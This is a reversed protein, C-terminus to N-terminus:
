ENGELASLLRDAEELSIKKQELMRLIMLREDESVPPRPPAPPAPPSPWEFGWTQRRSRRDTAAQARGESRRRHAELKRELKEQARRMKEQARASEREGTNIAQNVIRETEEPSFGARNLRDSLREMQENIRRTMDAMQQQIQEEVQRAVQQGFDKPLGGVDGAVPGSESWGPREVFLYIAGGSRLTMPTAGQGLSLEYAPQQHTTVGEPLRVKIVSGDSFMQIHLSADEPLYCYINGDAQVQYASGSLTNLRLRANGNAGARLGGAVNQIDLNGGVEGLTLDGNVERVDADGHVINRRWAKPPPRLPWTATFWTSLAGLSM